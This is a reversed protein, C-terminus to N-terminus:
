SNDEVLNPKVSFPSFKYRNGNEDEAIVPYKRNKPAWGVIAFRRSGSVFHRGFDDPSFGFRPACRRFDEEARTVTEEGRDVTIELRTSLNNGTFTGKGWEAQLGLAELEALMAAMLRTKVAQINQKTLRTIKSM